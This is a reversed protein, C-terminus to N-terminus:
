ILFYGSEGNQGLEPPEMALRRRLENKITSKSVPTDLDAVVAAYIAVPRMPADATALVRRIAPWVWGQRRPLQRDVPEAPPRGPSDSLRRGLREWRGQARPESLAGALEIRSMSQWTRVADAPM